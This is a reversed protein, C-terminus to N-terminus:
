PADGFVVPSAAHTDLFARTARYDGEGHDAACQLTALDEFEARRRFCGISAPGSPLADHHLIADKECLSNREWILHFFPSSEDDEVSGGFPDMIGRHPCAVLDYLMATAVPPTM